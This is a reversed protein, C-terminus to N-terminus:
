NWFYHNYWYFIQCRMLTWDTNKRAVAICVSFSFRFVSSIFIVTKHSQVQFSTKIKMEQLREKWKQPQRIKISILKWVSLSGLTKIGGSRNEQYQNLRQKSKWRHFFRSFEEFVVTTASVVIEDSNQFDDYFKLDWCIQHTRQWRESQWWPLSIASNVYQYTLFRRLELINIHANQINAPQSNIYCEWSTSNVVSSRM